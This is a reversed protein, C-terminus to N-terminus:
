TTPLLKILHHQLGHTTETHTSTKMNHHDRHGEWSMDIDHHKSSSCTLNHSDLCRTSDPNVFKCRISETNVIFMKFYHRSHEEYVSSCYLFTPKGFASFTHNIYLISQKSRLLSLVPYHFTRSGHNHGKVGLYKTNIDYHASYNGHPISLTLIEHITIQWSRDQMPIDILLLFQKNKILVHTCLYRYFHLTDDPSVPLTAYTTLCRSHTVANKTSGHGTLCSASTAANIYDMTHASVMWIYNLSDYLNAFVSRIHLVLQHFNISTTLSTTLNYLNNIDHSTARATDMLSNISHRNVQTAYRTVNLISIIHVLIEQQSSQTAINPKDM